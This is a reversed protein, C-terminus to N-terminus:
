AALHLEATVVDWPVQVRNDEAREVLGIAELARVDTHVSKYDRAMSRALARVSSPGSSRLAKLLRWRTPTLCRLLTELDEFHLLDVAAEQGVSTAAAHWADVFLRGGQEEEAVAIKLVKNV